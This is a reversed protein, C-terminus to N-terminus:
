TTVTYINCKYVGIANESSRLISAIVKSLISYSKVSDERCSIISVIAHMTHEKTEEEV